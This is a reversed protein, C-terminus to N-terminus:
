HTGALSRRLWDLATQSAQVKVSARDGVFQCRLSRVRRRDALGFCVLGVPKKPTGGTPGAIGTISLGLDAGALERVGMAMAKATQESVAGFRALLRAPVGLCGRKLDNHYALLSGRLYRSSGPVDTLRDSVLGGTCSEAVALTKHRRVLWAGVVEELTADDTGYLTVGLARRLPVEVQTLLRQAVRRSPATATLRVDVARLHPYLGVAVSAPIRLRRLRREIDLEVLGVTRLTRSAIAQHGRLRRLRPLVHRELMSRM